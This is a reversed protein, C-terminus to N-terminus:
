PAVKWSTKAAVDLLTICAHTKSDKHFSLASAQALCAGLVRRRFSLLVEATKEWTRKVKAELALFCFRYHSRRATIRVDYKLSMFLYPFHM